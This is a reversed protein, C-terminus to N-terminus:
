MRVYSADIVRSYFFVYDDNAVDLYIIVIAIGEISM